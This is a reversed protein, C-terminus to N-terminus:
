RCARRTACANSIPCSRRRARPTSRRWRSMWCLLLPAALLARGLAVRSKEGGSLKAPRRTLLAELGLLDLVRDFEAQSAKRAARRWGFRLNNEVSMHPFLRADQFVTATRRLRPPVFTGSATDLLVRGDVM